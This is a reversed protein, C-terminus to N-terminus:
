YGLVNEAWGWIVAQPEGALRVVADRVAADQGVEPAVGGSLRAGATTRYYGVRGMVERVMPRERM